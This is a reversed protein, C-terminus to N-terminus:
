TSGVIKLYIGRNNLLLDMCHILYCCSGEFVYLHLLVLDIINNLEDM